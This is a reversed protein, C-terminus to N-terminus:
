KILHKPFDQVNECCLQEMVQQLERKLISIAQNGGKKGMAGVGYMPARGLFAFDAGTALTAAIDPGSRMGSDMMIKIKGKFEKIVASLVAITSQGADLQRGGHNSIIVGDLGLSISKEIDEKSAVGKLIMKGPWIDRIEKVRDESMRGSFTKNMFLGLHKLNMGKPMYPKLTKFEPQGAFLTSLAWNPNAMIQFMNPLTLKPPISLGNKIEKPRYGFTPVDSLLVLVPYGAEKVRELLKNRLDKEAPHYLQFWARGETIEAVTEVDATAVTSLTFPINHDFAAQALIETAKPWILGQLGIPSIGFPADYTHGFLETEMKIGGYDRLYYPKLEVERIDSTNKRLNVENNCGGSLYQYAFKPLRKQTKAKLHEISPYRPDIIIEAM